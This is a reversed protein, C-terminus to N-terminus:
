HPSSSFANGQLLQTHTQRDTQRHTHTHTHTHTDCCVQTPAARPLRHVDQVSRQRALQALTDRDDVHDHEDFYPLEDESDDDNADSARNNGATLRVAANTIRPRGRQQEERPGALLMEMHQRFASGRSTRTSVLSQGRLSDLENRAETPQQEAPQRIIRDLQGRRLPVIQAASGAMRSVEDRRENALRSTWERLRREFGDSAVARAQEVQEAAAM